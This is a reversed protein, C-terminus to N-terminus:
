RVLEDALMGVNRDLDFDEIAWEHVPQGPTAPKDIEWAKFPGGSETFFKMMYNGHSTVGSKASTPELILHAREDVNGIHLAPNGTVDVDWEWKLAFRQSAPRRRPDVDRLKDEPSIARAIDTIELGWENFVRATRIKFEGLLGDLEKLVQDLHKVRFELKFAM